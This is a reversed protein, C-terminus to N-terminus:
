WNTFARNFIDELLQDSITVLLKDQVDLLNENASFDAFHKFTQVWNEKENKNNTFRIEIAVDLRNISATEGPKPAVPSVRYDTITGAFELEPDVDKYILRTENRIKNKLAEAFQNPFNVPVATTKNEINAIFFTSIDPPISIGKFSYCSNFLIIISLLIAGQITKKM